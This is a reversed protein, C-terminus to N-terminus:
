EHPVPAWVRPWATGPPRCGGTIGDPLRLGTVTQAGSFWRPELKARAVLRDVALRMSAENFEEAFDTANRRSGNYFRLFFLTFVVAATVWDDSEAAYYVGAASIGVVTLGLLGALPKGAYIEGSGPM